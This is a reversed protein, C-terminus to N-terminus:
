PFKPFKPSTNKQPAVADYQRHAIARAVERATSPAPSPLNSKNYLKRLQAAKNTKFLSNEIQPIKISAHVRAHIDSLPEEEDRALRLAEDVDAQTITLGQLMEKNHAFIALGSLAVPDMQQGFKGGLWSLTGHYGEVFDNSCATANRIADSATSPSPFDDVFHDWEELLEKGYERTAGKRVRRKKCGESILCRAFTNADAANCNYTARMAQLFEDSVECVDKARKATQRLFRVVEIKAAQM